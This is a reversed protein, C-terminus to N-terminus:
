CLLQRVVNEGPRRAATGAWSLVAVLSPNPQRSTAFVCPRVKAVIRKKLMAEKRITEVEPAEELFVEASVFDAGPGFVAHSATKKERDESFQHLFWQGKESISSLHM